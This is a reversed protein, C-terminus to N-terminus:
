EVVMSRLLVRRVATGGRLRAIEELDEVLHHLSSAGQLRDPKLSRLYVLVDQAIEAAMIDGIASEKDGVLSLDIRLWPRAAGELSVLISPVQKISGLPTVVAAKGANLSAPRSPALHNEEILWAVASGCIASLLTGIVWDIVGSLRSPRKAESKDMGAGPPPM